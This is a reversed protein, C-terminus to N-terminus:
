QRTPPRSSAWSDRALMWSGDAQRRYIHIGHVTDRQREGSAKNIEIWTTAFREFAWGAAVIIEFSDHDVIEVDYTAFFREIWAQADARGSVVRGNPPLFVVDSTVNAIFAHTNGDELASLEADRAVRIAALIEGSDVVQQGELLPTIVFVLQMGLGLRILKMM